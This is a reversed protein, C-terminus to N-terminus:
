DRRDLETPSRRTLDHSRLLRNAHESMTVVKYRSDVGRFFRCLYDIKRHSDLNMAPFFALEDVEDNGLFDLPHLMLSPETGTLRCLGLAIRLYQVALWPSRTSIYLLYSFHFPLKLIPMTTVPIELIRRDGMDWLFPRVPRTGDKVRGYLARRQRRQDPTLQAMRFLYARALPGLFMPFTSADLVYGKRSLVEITARSVSYGAGRFENPRIGIAQEISDEAQSIEDELQSESYLHLWPDHHYSHNGIDHGAAVISALAERNRDDAADQGVVFFTIKWGFRDLLDLIRPVAVDLYSPFSEWGADGHNKMYSWLNDLDLSVSCISEPASM